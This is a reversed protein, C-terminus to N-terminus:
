STQLFVNTDLGSPSGDEIKVWLYNVTLGGSGLGPFTVQVQTSSHQAVSIVRSSNQASPMPAYLLLHYYQATGGTVQQTIRLGPRFTSESALLSDYQLSSNVTGTTSGSSLSETYPISVTESTSRGPFTVASSSQYVRVRRLGATPGSPPPDDTGETRTYVPNYILVPLIPDSGVTINM